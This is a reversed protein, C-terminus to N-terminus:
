RSTLASEFRIASWTLPSSRDGDLPRLPPSEELTVRTAVYLGFGIGVGVILLAVILIWPRRAQGQPLAQQAPEVGARRM